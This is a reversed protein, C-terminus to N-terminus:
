SRRSRVAMAVIAGLCGLGVVVYVLRFAIANAVGPEFTALFGYVCFGAIALCVVSLIWKM